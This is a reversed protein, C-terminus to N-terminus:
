SFAQGPIADVRGARRISQVAVGLVMRDGIIEFAVIAAGAPISWASGGPREQAGESGKRTGGRKRRETRLSTKM